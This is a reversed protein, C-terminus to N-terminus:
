KSGKRAFGRVLLRGLSIQRRYAGYWENFAPHYGRAYWKIVFGTAPRTDTPFGFIVYLAKCNHARSLFFNM